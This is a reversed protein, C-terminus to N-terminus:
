ATVKSSLTENDMMEKDITEVESTFTGLVKINGKILAYNIEHKLIDQLYVMSHSKISKNFRKGENTKYHMTLTHVIMTM